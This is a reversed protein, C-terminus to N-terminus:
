GNVFEVLCACVSFIMGVLWLAIAVLGSVVFLLILFTLAFTRFISDLVKNM